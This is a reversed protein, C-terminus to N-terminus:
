GDTAAAGLSNGQEGFRYLALRRLRQLFASSTEGDILAAHIVNSRGMALDLQRSAFLNIRAVNAAAEGLRGVLLRDLKQVGDASGDSAHILAAVAGSRIAAEVKMAGAILAGSKNVISLFQLADEELLRDVSDALDPPAVAKTKFGRSFLQKRAAEAVLKASAQVWVGRGPLKRRIDPTVAGDPALAFHIMTEPSGKVGSVICTREPSARKRGERAEGAESM